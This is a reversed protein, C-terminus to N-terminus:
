KKAKKYVEWKDFPGRRIALEPNGVLFAEADSKFVTTAVIGQTHALSGEEPFFVGSTNPKLLEANPGLSHPGESTLQLKAGGPGNIKRPRGPGGELLDKTLERLKGQGAYRSISNSSVKTTITPPGLTKPGISNLLRALHEDSLKSDVAMQVKAVVEPEVALLKERVLEQVGLTDPINRITGRKGGLFPEEVVSVDLDRLTRKLRILAKEDNSITTRSYWPSWPTKQGPAKREYMQSPRVQVELLTEKMDQPTLRLRAGGIQPAGEIQTITGHEVAPAHFRVEGIDGEVAGTGENMRRFEGKSDLRQAVKELKKKDFVFTVPSQVGVNVGRMEPRTTFSRIGSGDYRTVMGLADSVNTSHYLHEVEEIPTRTGLAPRKFPTRGMMFFTAGLSVLPDAEQESPIGAGALLAQFNTAAGGPRFSEESFLARALVDPPLQSPNRPGITADLGGAVARNAELRNLIEHAREPTLGVRSPLDEPRSPPLAFLERKQRRIDGQQRKMERQARRIFVRLGAPTDTSPRLAFAQRLTEIQDAREPFEARIRHVFTPDQALELAREGEAMEGETPGFALPRAELPASGFRKPWEGQANPQVKALFAARLDYSPSEPDVNLRQAWTQFDAELPGLNNPLPTRGNQSALEILDPTRTSPPIFSEPSLNPLRSTPLQEPVQPEPEGIVQGAGQLSTGIISLTSPGGSSGAGSSGAGATSGAAGGAAGGGAAGAIGIGISAGAGAYVIKKFTEPNRLMWATIPKAIDAIPELPALLRQLLTAM